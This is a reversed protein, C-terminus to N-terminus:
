TTKSAQPKSQTMVLSLLPLLIHIDLRSLQGIYAGSGM